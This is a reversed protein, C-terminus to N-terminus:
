AHVYWDFSVNNTGGAPATAFNVYLTTSDVTVYFPLAAASSAPTVNFYSPVRGVTGGLRHLVTFQTASGTGNGTFTGNNKNRFAANNLTFATDIWNEGIVMNPAGFTVKAPNSNGSKILNGDFVITDGTNADIEIQYVFANAPLANIKNGIITASVFGSDLVIQHDTGDEFSNDNITLHYVANPNGNTTIATTIGIFNNNNIVINQNPATSNDRRDLLIGTVTGNFINNTIVIDRVAGTLWVCQQAPGAFGSPQKITNGDVVINYTARTSYATARAIGIAAQSNNGAHNITNNAITYNYGGDVAIGRGQSSSNITNGVVSIGFQDQYVALSGANESTLSIADDRTAYVTNGIVNVNQCGTLHIGDSNTNRVICNSVTGNTSNQPTLAWSDVNEVILNDVFFDEANLILLGTSGGAGTGSTWTQNKYTFNQLSVKGQCTLYFCGYTSPAPKTGALFISEYKSEGIFSVDTFDLDETFLYTGIPLYVPKGSTAAYAAADKISNTDDTTGDGVAGFDFVNIFAGDIMSFSVKTLSM